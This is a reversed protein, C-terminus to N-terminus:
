ELDKAAKDEPQEDKNTKEDAEEKEDDLKPTAEL